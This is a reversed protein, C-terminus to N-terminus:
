GDFNACGACIKQAGACIRKAMQWKGNETAASGRQTWKHNYQITVARGPALSLLKASSGDSPKSGMRSEKMGIRSKDM